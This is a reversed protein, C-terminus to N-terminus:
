RKGKNKSKSGKKITSIYRHKRNYAMELVSFINASIFTFTEM